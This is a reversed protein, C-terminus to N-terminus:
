QCKEFVTTIGCRNVPHYGKEELFKGEPSNMVDSFTIVNGQELLICEIDVSFDISKLVDMETGEVDIDLFDIRKVKNEKLINDLRRLKVKVSNNVQKHGTNEYHKVTDCDFTNLASEEFQYYKREGEIDSIGCNINIDRSRMIEFFKFNERNPEINIGSWGRKYAWYTNSYRFPHFSGVDVYFGKEKNVFKNALYIDEGGQSYINTMYMEDISYLKKREADWYRIKELDVQLEICQMCVSEWDGTTIVILDPDNMKVLERPSLIIYEHFNKGWKAEDQDCFCKVSLNSENIQRISKEALKGTGWCGINVM